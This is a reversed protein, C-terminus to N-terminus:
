HCYQLLLESLQYITNAACKVVLSFLTAICASIFVTTCNYANETNKSKQPGDPLTPHPIVQMSYNEYTTFSKSWKTYQHGNHGM